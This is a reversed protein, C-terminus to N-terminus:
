GMTTSLKYGGFITQLVKITVLQYTILKLLMSMFQMLGHAYKQSDWVIFYDNTLLYLWFTEFIILVVPKFEKDTLKYSYFRFTTLRYYAGSYYTCLEKATFKNFIGFLRWITNCKQYLYGANLCNTIEFRKNIEVDQRIEQARLREVYGNYNSTYILM